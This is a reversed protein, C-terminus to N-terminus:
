KTPLVRETSRNAGKKVYPDHRALAFSRPATRCRGGTLRVGATQGRAAEGRLDPNQGLTEEAIPNGSPPQLHCKKNPGFAGSARPVVRFPM